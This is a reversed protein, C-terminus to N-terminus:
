DSPRAKPPTGRMGSFSVPGGAKGSSLGALADCQRGNLAINRACQRCALIVRPLGHCSRKVELEGARKIRFARNEDHAQLFRPAKRSGAEGFVCAADFRQHLDM